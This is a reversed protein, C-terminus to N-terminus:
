GWGARRGRGVFAAALRYLQLAEIRARGLALRQPQGVGAGQEGEDSLLARLLDALEDRLRVELLGVALEALHLPPLREVPRTYPTM